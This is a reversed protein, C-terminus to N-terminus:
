TSYVWKGLLLAPPLLLLVLLGSTGVFATALIADLAVLGFICRKVGAQVREPIPKRIAAVVPFGIWFGLAVLLYPFLFSATGAPVRTPVALAIVLAALMVFAAARLVRPQSRKEETRAFWTVGVIYVGVALALHVRTAMPLAAVDALTLGLLVNLFRCAAMGIPGFSTRKIRADYLLVALVLVGGVIAGAPHWGDSQLGSLAAAAFGIATLAIGIQSATRVSIKKSPLPRFPRDRRDEELDYYDNWVMGACYLCGSALLLAFARVLWEGDITSSSVGITVCIGMAIDAFATFVNPLRLLRAYPLFPMISPSVAARTVTPGSHM